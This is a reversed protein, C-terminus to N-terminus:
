DCSLIYMFDLVRPFYCKSSDCAQYFLKGKLVIDEETESSFSIIPVSISIENSFVLLPTESSEMLFKETQPYIPTGLIVNPNEEFSIYSPILNDDLVENAQIHFGDKIKFSIVFSQNKEATITYSTPPYLKVFDTQQGYLSTVSGFSFVMWVYFVNNPLLSIM